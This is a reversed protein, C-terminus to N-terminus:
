GVFLAIAVGSREADILRVYRNADILASDRSSYILLFPEEDRLARYLARWSTAACKTTSASPRACAAWIERLASM